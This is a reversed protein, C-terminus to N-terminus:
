SRRPRRARARASGLAFSRRPRLPSVRRPADTRVCTEGCPRDDTRPPRAVCPARRRSRARARAVMSAFRYAAARAFAARLLDGVSIGRGVAAIEHIRGDAPVLRLLVAGGLVKPQVDPLSLLADVNERNRPVVSVGHTAVRHAHPQLLVKERQVRARRSRYSNCSCHGRRRRRHTGKALAWCASSWLLSRTLISDIDDDPVVMVHEM